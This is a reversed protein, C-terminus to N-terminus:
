DVIDPLFTIQPTPLSADIGLLSIHLSKELLRHKLAYIQAMKKLREVRYFPLSELPHGFDNSLRTKVEVFYTGGGKSAVMDIEGHRTRFNTELIAFGKAQLYQAALGEGERGLIQNSKAM